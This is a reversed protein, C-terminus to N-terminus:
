KTAFFAIGVKGLTRLKQGGLDHKLFRIDYKSTQNQKKFRSKLKRCM